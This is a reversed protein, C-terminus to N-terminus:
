VQNQQREIAKDRTFDKRDKVLVGGKFTLNDLRM